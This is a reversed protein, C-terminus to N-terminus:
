TQPERGPNNTPINLHALVVDLLEADLPQKGDFKLTIKFDTEFLNNKADRKLYEKLQRIEEFLYSNKEKMWKCPLICCACPEDELNRQTIVIEDKEPNYAAKFNNCTSDPTPCTLNRAALAIDLCITEQFRRKDLFSESLEKESRFEYRAYFDCHSVVSHSIWHFKSVSPMRDINQKLFQSSVREKSIDLVDALRLIVMLKKISVPDYSATSKQRYVEDAEFLHAEAVNAVIMRVAADLYSLDKCKKILRASEFGHSSRIDSEFFEDVQQYCFVMFRKFDNKDVDFFDESKRPSQMKELETIANTHYTDAGNESRVFDLTNPYIVMAIDHLYCALFLIYYDYMKLQLYDITRVIDVCTKILEVSHDENHLTYFHLFKSGNRWISVLFQHTRIIDDILSPYRVFRVLVELIEMISAEVKESNLNIKANHAIALLQARDAAVFHPNRVWTLIRLEFYRLAFGNRKYFCLSDSPCVNLVTSLYANLVMQYYKSEGCYLSRGYNPIFEPPETQSLCKTLTDLTRGLNNKTIEQEKTRMITRLTKYKFDKDNTQCRSICKTMYLMKVPTGKSLSLELDRIRKKITAKKKDNIPGSLLTSAKVMLIDEDLKEMISRLDREHLLEDIEKELAEIGNDYISDHQQEIVFLRYKFFRIYRKLHKIANDKHEAELELDTNCQLRRLEAVLAKLWVRIKAELTTENLENLALRFEMGIRSADICVNLLYNTGAAMNSGIKDRRSKGDTHVSICGRFHGFMSKESQTFGYRFPGSFDEGFKKNLEHVTETFDFSKSTYTYSDDVYYYTIGGFAEDYRKAIKSMVLNAFFYSQPLGQPIGKTFYRGSPSFTESDNEPGYYHTFEHESMDSIKLVLLKKLATQLCEFSDDDFEPRMLLSIMNLVYEPNISPFFDKLDLKVQYRYKGTELSENLEEQWAEAFDQYCETWHRFMREHKVSPLNGYFSHPILTSLSSLTKTSGDQEKGFMLCNLISAICIQTSLSATHMPRFSVRNEESNYKKAKFYVSAEFYEDENLLVQKLQTECKELYRSILNENFVDDLGALDEQDNESLLGPEFIFSKVAYLSAFINERSCIEKFLRSNQM